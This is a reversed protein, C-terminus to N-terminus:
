GKENITLQVLPAAEQVLRADALLRALTIKKFIHFLEKGEGPRPAVATMLITRHVSYPYTEYDSPENSSRFILVTGHGAKACHYFDQRYYHGLFVCQDCDHKFKPATTGEIM